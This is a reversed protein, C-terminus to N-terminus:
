NSNEKYYKIVKELQEEKSCDENDLKAFLAIELLKKYVEGEPINLKKLDEGRVDAKVYRWKVIYSTLDKKIDEDVRAMTYLISEICMRSLIEYLSSILKSKNYWKKLESNLSIVESRFKLFHKKRTNSLQLREIIEVLEDHNANKGLALLLLLLPDANLELYLKKYWEYYNLVQEVISDNESNVHLLPHISSFVKYYELRKICDFLYEEKLILDLEGVIRAGSLKDLLQLDIANSILKDAQQSIEFKYRQEFRIARLIRTPDEIFSLTHLIRIKKTKIDLQGDFYDVLDGYQDSNLRIAMANMAFDRRYLDMKISSIEVTPLAAPYEYYELRATAIDIKQKKNSKDTYLVTATHFKKHECVRGNLKKALVSAFISVNGELVFDLDFDIGQKKDKRMLLDRVFGGVLLIKYSLEDAIEGALKLISISEEDLAHYLNKSLNRVKNNKAITPMPLIINEDSFLHMIDTRTIVGFIPFELLKEQPLDLFTDVVPLLRQKSGVIIDMIEQLNSNRSVISFNKQMYDSVKSNNTLENLVKGRGAQEQSIWGICKKTNKMVVPVAKLGYRSMTNYALNMSCDEDITIVPSSLLKGAYINTNIMMFVEKIISDKVEGVTMDKISAAAAYAHGGGTFKACIEGVNINKINSRALIQIKGAMLGLAFFVKCSVIEMFKPALLAFDHLYEDSKTSAIVITESLIEHSEASELLENLAKIHSPTLESHQYQSIQGGDVGLKWLYTAALFDKETCSEYTFSGTDIHIGLSLLTADQENILINRFKLEEVLLSCTAGIEEYHIENSIIDDDTSPHHDWVIVELGDNDLCPLIHELRSLQKTDVIVLKKVLSFDIDKAAFLTYHKDAIDTIYRQLHLEQTGPFVIKADQYLLSAGILSAFADFDANSHCTIITKM